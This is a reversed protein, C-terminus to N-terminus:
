SRTVVLEDGERVFTYHKDDAQFELLDNYRDLECFLDALIKAVEHRQDDGIGLNKAVHPSGVVAALLRIDEETYREEGGLVRATIQAYDCLGQIMYIVLYDAAPGWALTKLRQAIEDDSVPFRALLRRELEEAWLDILANSKETATM